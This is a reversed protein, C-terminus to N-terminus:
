FLNLLGNVNFVSMLFFSIILSYDVIKTRDTYMYDSALIVAMFLLSEYGIFWRFEVKSFLILLLGFSFIMFMFFPINISKFSKKKFFEIIPLLWLVGTFRVLFLIFVKVNNLLVFLYTTPSKIISELINNPLSEVGNLEIYKKVEPFKTKWINDYTFAEGKNIINRIALYNRQSWNYGEPNKSYFSLNYNEKLSPYYIVFTVLLFPILLYAGIKLVEYTKIKNKYIWFILVAAIMPIALIISLRVGLCLALLVGITIWSLKTVKKNPVIKILLIYLISMFFVAMFTDNSAKLYSSQLLQKFVFLGIISYFAYSRKNLSLKMMILVGIYLILLQGGLNIIFFSKQIDGTFYNLFQLGLYYINTTGEVNANYWGNNLFDVFNSMYGDNDAVKFVSKYLVGALLSLSSVFLFIINLFLLIKKKKFFLILSYFKKYKM